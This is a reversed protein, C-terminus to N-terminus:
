NSALFRLPDVSKLNQRIEFHLQPENVAGTRGVKGIIDGKSVKQGKRVLMVDNHAYATVFGNDHKILLLNGYGDLESGRYVVEGDAAARITTGQPASINIGENRRGVGGAGYNSIVSGRIPWQFQDTSSTVPKSFSAERTISAINQQNRPRPTAPLKRSNRNAAVTSRRPNVSSNNAGDLPVSPLLLQQGVVLNYPASLRNAVAIAPVTIGNRRAIAFLTDGPAVAYLVDRAIVNRQTAAGLDTSGISSSHIPSSQIAATEIIPSTDQYQRDFQNDFQGSPIAIIQGVNLSYPQVLGNLAIIDNPATGTRRAIAYVTDGPRVSIQRVGNITSSGISSAGQSSRIPASGNLYTPAEPLGRYDVNQQESIYVPEQYPQTRVSNNYGSNGSVVNNNVPRTNNIPVPEFSQGAPPANYIRVGRQNLQQSSQQYVPEVYTQTAGNNAFQSQAQQNQSLVVPGQIIPQNITGQSTAEYPSPAAYPAQANAQQGEQQLYVEARSNYVRGSTIETGYVIPASTSSAGCAGLAVMSITTMLISHSKRM